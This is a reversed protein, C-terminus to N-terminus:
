HLILLGTDDATGFPSALSVRVASASEPQGPFFWLALAAGYCCYDLYAGGGLAADYWWTSAKEADSLPAVLDRVGPHAAGSALPGGSGMRTHMQLIEGAAGQEVLHQMRRVAGSWASPWNVMLRVNAARAATVMREAGRLSNTLPKETVIHAGHRAVHEGI